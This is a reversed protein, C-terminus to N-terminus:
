FPVDDEDPQTVLGAKVMQGPVWPPTDRSDLWLAADGDKSKFDPARPNRKSTRNDWYASTDAFFDMWKQSAPDVSSGPPPMEGFFSQPRGGAFDDQAPAPPPPPPPQQQPANWAEAAPQASQYGVNWPRVRNVQDAVIKFSSRTQGEKDRYEESKLRGVVQIQSGVRFQETAQEALSNWVELNFWETEKKSNKVAVRTTAVCMGNSLKRLEFPKGINGLIGVSNVLRPDFDVERIQVDRSYSPSPQREVGVDEDLMASPASASASVNALRQHFLRPVMLTRQQLVPAVRSHLPRAIQAGYTRSSLLNRATKVMKLLMCSGGLVGKQLLLLSQNGGNPTFISIRSVLINSVQRLQGKGSEVKIPRNGSM